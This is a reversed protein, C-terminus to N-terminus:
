AGSTLERRMVIADERRGGVAPYYDRRRGVPAFGAHEYLRLAAMNSPRVELFMQRAGHVKLDHCLVDLFWRGLGQGQVARLVSINLLHAEDVIKLCVAYGLPEGDRELVSCAHGADLSDKFNGRTWPFAHLVSEAACVWDLDDATMPRIRLAASM